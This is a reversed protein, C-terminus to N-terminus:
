PPLGNQWCKKMYVLSQTAITGPDPTYDFVEVSVWGAYHKERLAAFIPKFDM